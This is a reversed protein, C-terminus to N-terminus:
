QVGNKKKTTLFYLMTSIVFSLLFINDDLYLFSLLAIIQGSIVIILFKIIKSNNLM